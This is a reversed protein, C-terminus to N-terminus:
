QDKKRESKLNPCFSGSAFNFYKFFSVVEADTKRNKRVRIEFGEEVNYYMASGYIHTEKIDLEKKTFNKHFDPIKKIYEKLTITEEPYVNIM